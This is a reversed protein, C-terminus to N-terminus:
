LFKELRALVKPMNKRGFGVRVHNGPYGMISAPLLMIGAKKILAASLADATRDGLYEPFIITGGKPPIWRFLAQHRDFFEDLITLNHQYIAANRLLIADMSKLAALALIESPAAACITTYDKWIAASNLFQTNQSALWGVRLGPLSFSKSLGGLSIGNEYTEVIAPLRDATDMEAYRYMEDSFIIIDHKRALNIMEDQQHKTLLAGTPNHPFNAIILRTEPKILNNLDAISFTMDTQMHPEWWNVDCGLSIAIQYLSQYGPHTVIIHDGAKLLTNLTIFIGEEPIVELIQDSSIDQYLDAIATLLKRHGQSETYGLSLSDWLNITDPDAMELVETLSLPEADSCSLLYPASFEHKAFYREIEFPKIKM